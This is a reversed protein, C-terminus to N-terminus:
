VDIRGEKFDGQVESYREPTGIDKLYEDTDYGFLPIGEDILVSFVDREIGCFKGEPIYEFIGPELVLLGANSLSTSPEHDRPWGWFTVVKGESDLELLDSDKPHSSEHVVLTAIGGKEQHYSILKTLNVNMMVDGYLVLFRENLIKEMKKLAGATGLLKPERSYTIAVGFREGRGFYEVIRDPQWHLNVVLDCIGYSRCLNVLHELIPKGGIPLMVKPVSDTLPRLREGVGATLIFAKM